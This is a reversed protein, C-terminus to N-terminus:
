NPLDTVPNYNSLLRIEAHMKALTQQNRNYNRVLLGFEDDQHLAPLTLQHYPAEDQSINDLERAIVRLPYVMLQKMCWTIALSLIQALLLYAMPRPNAPGRELPYLPVSIHILLEFLRSILTPM